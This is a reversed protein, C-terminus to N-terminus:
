WGYRQGAESRNRKGAAFHEELADQQTNALNVLQKLSHKGPAIARVPTHQVTEGSQRLLENAAYEEDTSFNVVTVPKNNNTTNISPDSSAGRRGLLQRRASASLNLDAAISSLTTAAPEPQHPQPQSQLDTYIPESPDPSPNLPEQYLLPQYTGNTKSPNPRIISPESTEPMSFLSISPASPTSELNKPTPETPPVAKSPPPKKVAKRAVSLPKFITAKKKPIEEVKTQDTAKTDIEGHDKREEPIVEPLKTSETETPKAEQATSGYSAHEDQDRSFGPAASTRLSVAKGLSIGGNKIGAGQLGAARKPAPLFSNFGGFSSPGTRVKKAPPESSPDSGDNTSVATEPLTIRIKNPNSPDVLKQFAPKSTKAKNKPPPLSVIKEEQDSDESGSYDVLGM